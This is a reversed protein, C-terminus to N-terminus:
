RVYKRASSIMAGYPVALPARGAAIQVLDIDESYREAPTQFLAVLARTLVLDQEVQVDQRASWGAGHM